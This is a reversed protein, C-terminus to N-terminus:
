REWEALHEWAGLRDFLKYVENNDFLADSPKAIWGLSVFHRMNFGEVITKHSNRLAIELDSSLCAFGPSVDLTKWYAGNIPCRGFVCLLTSWKHKIGTLDHMISISENHDMPPVSYSTMNVVSCKDGPLLTIALNKVKRRAAITKQVLKSKNKM